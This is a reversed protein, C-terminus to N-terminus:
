FRFELETSNTDPLDAIAPSSYIGSVVSDTIGERWEIMWHWTRRPVLDCTAMLRNLSQESFFNIHEVSFEQFPANICDAFRTVDPQACYIIGGNALRAAVTRLASRAERLHELVGVLLIVDFCETWSMMQEMTSPIVEVGHLKRAAKACAPSPDVGLVNEFGNRKFISLLGGTACGIDLIRAERSHMFPIVQDAIAEFRTFDYRSEAGDAHDYTYRSLREYYRDLSEQTPINDAFGMGCHSCVVVDYGEGLPGDRFRQRHLLRREIGSCVPCLRPKQM